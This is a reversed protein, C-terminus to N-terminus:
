SIRDKPKLECSWSNTHTYTYRYWCRSNDYQNASVAECLFVLGVVALVVAFAIIVSLIFGDQLGSFYFINRM